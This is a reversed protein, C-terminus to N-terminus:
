RQQKAFRYGRCAGTPISTAPRPHARLLLFSYTRLVEEGDLAKDLLDSIDIETM